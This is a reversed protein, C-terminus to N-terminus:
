IKGWKSIDFIWNESVHCILDENYKSRGSKIELAARVSETYPFAEKVTLLFYLIAGISWLDCSENYKELAVIEPATYPLSFFKYKMSHCDRKELSLGFDIIKISEVNGSNKFILNEPKIDRHIINKCHLYDVASSIQKIINRSCEESFPENLVDFLDGGTLLEMVFYIKDRNMFEGIFEVINPHGQAKQLFYLEEQYNDDQSIIKAAYTKRTKKDRCKRTTSFSGKKANFEDNNKSSEFEYFKFFNKTIEVNKVDCM